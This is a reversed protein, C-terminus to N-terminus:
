ELLGQRHQRKISCAYKKTCNAKVSLTRLDTVGVRLMKLLTTRVSERYKPIRVRRGGLKSRILAWRREGIIRIIIAYHEANGRLEAM